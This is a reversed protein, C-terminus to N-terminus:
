GAAAARARAARGLIARGPRAGTHRGGDIVLQGNVLVYEVGAAYQKPNDFSARDGVREPDFVVVDAWYGERLLGRDRLRLVQAPLGTMKRVADELRLVGEERVYRGLVRVNTGFSRPHPYGSAGASLASGDSGISVWPVQMVQRVDDESMTHYVGGPFAGEEAILDFCLEVPDSAGRLEAIQAVTKGELPKLSPTVVQSMVINPWDGHELVNRQFEQDQRVRARFEPDRFRPLM